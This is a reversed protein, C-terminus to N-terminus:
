GRGAAFPSACCIALILSGELKLLLKSGLLGQLLICAFSRKWGVRGGAPCCSWRWRLVRLWLCCDERRPADGVAHPNGRQKRLGVTASLPTWQTLKKVRCPFGLCKRRLSSCHLFKWVM